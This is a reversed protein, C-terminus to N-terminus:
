KLDEKKLNFVHMLMGVQGMTVQTQFGLDKGSYNIDYGFESDDSKFRLKNLDLKNNKATQKIIKIIESRIIGPWIVKVPPHGDNCDVEEIMDEITKLKM